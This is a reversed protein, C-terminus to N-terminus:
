KFFDPKQTWFQEGQRTKAITRLDEIRITTFYDWFAFNQMATVGLVTCHKIRVLISAKISPCCKINYCDTGIIKLTTGAFLKLKHLLKSSNASTSSM